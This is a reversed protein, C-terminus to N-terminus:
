WNGWFDLLVVKGRYDSLKFEKKDLDDAKIEPSQKGVRLTRLAKLNREASKKVNQIGTLEQKAKKGEPTDAGAKEVEAELRKEEAAAIKEIMLTFYKEAEAAVKDAEDQKDALEDARASLTEGLGMAASLKVRPKESKELIKKLTDATQPSNDRSLMMALREIIPSDIHKDILRDAAKSGVPLALGNMAIWALLDPAQAANGDKEARKFVAELLKSGPSPITNLRRALDPLPLDPVFDAIKDLAKEHVDSGFGNQAVWFLADAGAPDKPNDEVLKYFKASYDKSLARYKEIVKNREEGKAKNIEEVLKSRESSFEKVLDQYQEKASKGKEKQEDKKGDDKPKDDARLAPLALVAAMMFCLVRRM